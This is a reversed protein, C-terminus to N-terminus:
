RHWRCRERTRRHICILALDNLPLSRRHRAAGFDCVRARATLKKDTAAADEARRSSRARQATAAAHTTEPRLWRLAAPGASHPPPVRREAISADDSGCSSDPNIQRKTSPASRTYSDRTTTPRRAFARRVCQLPPPYPSPAIHVTRQRLQRVIECATGSACPRARREEERQAKLRQRGRWSHFKVETTSVFAVYRERRDHRYPLSQKLKTSM